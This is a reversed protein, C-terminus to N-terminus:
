RDREIGQTDYKGGGLSEGHLMELVVHAADMSEVIKDKTLNKNSVIALERKLADVRREYMAIVEEESSSSPDDPPSLSTPTDEAVTDIM